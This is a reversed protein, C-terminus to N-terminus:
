KTVDSKALRARDTAHHTVGNTQVREGLEECSSLRRLSPASNNRNRLDAM